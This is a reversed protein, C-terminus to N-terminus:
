WSYRPCPSLCLSFSSPQPDYFAMPVQPTELLVPMRSFALHCSEMLQQACLVTSLANVVGCVGKQPSSSLCINLSWSDQVPLPLCACVIIRCYRSPTPADKSPHCPRVLSQLQSGSSALCTDWWRLSSGAWLMESSYVTQWNSPTLSISLSDTFLPAM